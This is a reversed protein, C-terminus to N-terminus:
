GITCIDLAIIIVLKPSNKDTYSYLDLASM